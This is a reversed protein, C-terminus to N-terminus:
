QRNLFMNKIKEFNKFLYINKQLLFVFMKFLM